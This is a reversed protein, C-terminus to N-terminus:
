ELKRVTDQLANYVKMLQDVSPKETPDGGGGATTATAREPEVASQSELRNTTSSKLYHYEQPQAAHQDQVQLSHLVSTRFVNHSTLTHLETLPADSRLELGGYM